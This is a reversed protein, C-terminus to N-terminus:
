EVPLADNSLPALPFYCVRLNRNCRTAEGRAQRPPSLFISRQLHVVRITAPARRAHDTAAAAAPASAMPGLVRAQVDNRARSKAAASAADRSAQTAAVDFPSARWAPTAAALRAAEKAMRPRNM